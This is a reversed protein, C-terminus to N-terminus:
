GRFEFPNARQGRFEFPSARQGRFEFPNARQGRSEFSYSLRDWYSPDWACCSAYFRHGIHRKSRNRVLRLYPAFYCSDCVHFQRAVFDISVGCRDGISAVFRTHALFM